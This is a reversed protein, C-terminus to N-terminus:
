VATGTADVWVTAVGTTTRAFSATVGTSGTDSFSPASNTGTTTKTFTVTASGASGGVTWGSFATARIADGVQGATQGATVAVTKAVGNLTITINGSGTAGASVTLTDLEKTGVTKVWVPKNLTIDYDQMGVYEGSNPRAATTTAYHASIRRAVGDSKVVHLGEGTSTPNWNVGDAYVLSVPQLYTPQSARMAFNLFDLGVAQNGNTGANRANHTGGLSVGATGTDTSVGNVDLTGAVVNAAAAVQLLGGNTSGNTLDSEVNNIRVNQVATAGTGWGVLVCRSNSDLAIASFEVNLNDVVCGYIGSRLLVPLVYATNVRIHINRLSTNRCSYALTTDESVRICSTYSAGGTVEIYVGDFTVNKTLRNVWIGITGTGEHTSGFFALANSTTIYFGCETASSSYCKTGIIDHSQNEFMFNRYNSVCQVNHLTNSYSLSFHVGCNTAGANNWSLVDEMRGYHANYVYIGDGTNGNGNVTLGKVGWRLMQGGRAQDSVLLGVGNFNKFIEVCPEGGPEGYSEGELCISDENLLISSDIRYKGRPFWLRGGKLGTSALATIAANIKPAVNITATRNVVDAREAATMFHFVSTPLGALMWAVTSAVAGTGGPQHGIMGSGSTGALDATNIDSAVWSAGNWRYTLDAVSDFYEDGVQMASGDPRTSPAVSYSGPYFRNEIVAKTAIAAQVDDDFTNLVDIYDSQGPKFRTGM